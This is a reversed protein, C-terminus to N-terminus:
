SIASTMGSFSWGPGSAASIESKAGTDSNKKKKRINMMVVTRRISSTAIV